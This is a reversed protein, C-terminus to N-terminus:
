AALQEKLGDGAIQVAEVGGAAGDGGGDGAHDGADVGGGARREVLAVGDQADVRVVRQLDLDVHLFVVKGADGHAVFYADAEVPIFVAVVVRLAAHARDGVQGLGGFGARFPA